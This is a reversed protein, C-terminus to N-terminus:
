KAVIDMSEMDFKAGMPRAKRITITLLAEVVARQRDLPMAM